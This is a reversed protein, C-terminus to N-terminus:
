CPMWRRRAAAHPFAPLHERRRRDPRRGGPGAVPDPRVADRPQDHLRTLYNVLLTLSFTLPVATAVVIAERWGLTLAILGVVLVIASALEGVLENVKENATEGYNRTISVHVDSPIVGHRLEELKQELGRAVHVANSGKQKAM